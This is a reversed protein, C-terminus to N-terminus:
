GHPLGIPLLEFGSAVAYLDLREVGCEIVVHLWGKRRINGPLVPDVAVVEGVFGTDLDRVLDGVKKTDENAPAM